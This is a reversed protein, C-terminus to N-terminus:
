ARRQQTLMDLVGGVIVTIYGLVVGWLGYQYAVTVGQQAAEQQARTLQWFLVILPLTGSGILAAGDMKTFGGRQWAFFALAIVVLGALPVLFLVPRGPVPQVNEGSGVFTGAALQWGSFSGLPQDGCSALVWPLFFCLIALGAGPAAIKKGTSLM